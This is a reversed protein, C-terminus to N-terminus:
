VRKLQCLQSFKELYKLFVIVVVELEAEVKRVRITMCAVPFM